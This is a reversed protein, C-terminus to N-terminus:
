CCCLEDKHWSSCCVDLGASFHEGVGSLLICRVDEDMSLKDFAGAMSHFVSACLM